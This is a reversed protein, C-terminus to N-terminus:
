DKPSTYWFWPWVLVMIILFWIFVVKSNQQYKKSMSNIQEDIREQDQTYLHTTLGMGTIFYAAILMIPVEM